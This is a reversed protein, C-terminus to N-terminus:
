ATLVLGTLTHTHTHRHTYACHGRSVLIVTSGRGFGPMIKVSLYIAISATKYRWNVTWKILVTTKINTSLERVCVSKRMSQQGQEHLETNRSSLHNHLTTVFGLVTFLLCPRDPAKFTDGLTLRILCGLKVAFMQM